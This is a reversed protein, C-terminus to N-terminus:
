LMERCITRNFFFIFYIWMESSPLAGNSLRLCHEVQSTRAQSYEAMLVQRWTNL